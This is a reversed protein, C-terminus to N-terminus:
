APGCSKCRSTPISGSRAQSSHRAATATTRLCINSDRLGTRRSQSRSGPVPRGAWDGCFRCETTGNALQTLSLQNYTWAVGGTAYFLWSGPAYGIRGRVTGSTLVTESFTEAGLTPSTLNSAGGISIGANNPFGPFTVDAEAGIVIRNPLMYNYGAQLGQSFSGTDKFADFPQFLDLSGSVNPAGPTSATWNSTGWAYGVRGGAYFGSWDYGFPTTPAKVPLPLSLDAADARNAVDLATLLVCAVLLEKLTVGLGKVFRNLYCQRDSSQIGPAVLSGLWQRGDSEFHLEVQRRAALVTPELSLRGVIKEVDVDVRDSSTVLATVAVRGTGELDNSDLRRLALGSGALGQLLLARVHAEDPGRCTVSVLYGIEIEAAMLPQRNIFAVVPRLLLNVFLIFGTAVAAYPAYGSGALVGIAASCWITAATDLERVSAGERFILGAGLFGIGSVVQAAVRTPSSEGPVLAEFIVFSPEVVLRQLGSLAVQPM